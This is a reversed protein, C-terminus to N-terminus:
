NSEVLQMLQRPKLLTGTEVNVLIGHLALFTLCYVTYGAVYEALQGDVYQIHNKYFLAGHKDGKYVIKM